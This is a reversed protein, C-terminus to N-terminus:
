LEQERAEAGFAQMIMCANSHQIAKPVSVGEKM